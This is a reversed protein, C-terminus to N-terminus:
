EKDKKYSVPINLMPRQTSNLKLTEKIKDKNMIARPRAEMGVSTCFLLVNQAVFSADM